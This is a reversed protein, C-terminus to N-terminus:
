WRHAVDIVVRMGPVSAGPGALTLVRVPLRARVGLAITTTGEFSGASAVQRFTRYGSTDVLESPDDPRYTVEGQADYSPQGVVIQLVAGGRLPIPDGTADGVAQPVYRVDYATRSVGVLDVVLRDYCDHRGSRVDTVWGGGPGAPVSASKAQSGWTLGCYPAASAPTVLAFTSVLATVALVLLRVTRRMANREPTTTGIHPEASVLARDIAV